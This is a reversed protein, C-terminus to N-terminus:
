PVLEALYSRSLSLYHQGVSGNLHQRVLGAVLTDHWQARLRPARYAAWFQFAVANWAAKCKLM